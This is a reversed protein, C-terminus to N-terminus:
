FIKDFFNSLKDTISDFFNTDSQVELSNSTKSTDIYITQNKDPKQMGLKQKAYSEIQNLDTNQEIEMQATLLGSEVKVLDDALSQSELNKESIVNYRYVLVLAMSFMCLIVAISYTKRKVNKKNSAKNNKKVFKKKEEVYEFKRAASGTEYYSYAKKASM